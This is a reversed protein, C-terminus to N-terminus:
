LFTQGKRGSGIVIDMKETHAKQHGAAGEFSTEYFAGGKTTMRFSVDPDLSAMTDRGIDFHGHITTASPLASDLHHRTTLYSQFESQHCARCANDGVFGRADFADAAPPRSVGSGEDGPARDTAQQGQTAASFCLVAGVVFFILGLAWGPYKPGM